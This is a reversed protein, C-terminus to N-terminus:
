EVEGYLNGRMGSPGEGKNDRRKFVAAPRTQNTGTDKKPEKIILETKEKGKTKNDINNLIDSIHSIKDEIGDIRSLDNTQKDNAVKVKKELHENRKNFYDKKEPKRRIQAFAFNTTVVLAIALPDFVFIILLLFWNVVRDMAWGTIGSLYKLPGLEREGENSIEKNLLAMDTTTISDLIAELKLNINDRDVITNKLEAQLARRASSSSTTIVQEAEASYYSVSTPNSLSIRLDSISKTLQNKELQLDGKTEQFRIQKQNLVALGKDLLESKVATSQYAGSLFGYIGGSTIIMLVFCAIALYTRLIKNITGWYQYLLSAVVLKAFELSGAMIIVQTSAGAFLKSLGFVSYFAATGAVSLASLAIIYPFTNKM